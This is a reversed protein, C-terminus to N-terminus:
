ATSRALILHGSGDRQLIHVVIVHQAFYSLVTWTQACSGPMCRGSLADLLARLNPWCINGARSQSSISLVIRSLAPRMIFLKHACCRSFGQCCQGSDAACRSNHMSVHEASPAELIMQISRHM